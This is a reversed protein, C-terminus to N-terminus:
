SFLQNPMAPAAAANRIAKVPTLMIKATSPEIPFKVIKDINYFLPHVRKFAGTDFLYPAKKQQIISANM